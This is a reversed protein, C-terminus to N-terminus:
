ARDHPFAMVESISSKGLLLMLLRDFGLAVGSCDPLGSEMAALLRVAPPLAAACDDLRKRNEAAVRQRLVEPDTLEHYGNCLEIGRWYLEFREAVPPNGDRVKALASQSAPYDFLFEPPGQGLTPEVKEVLLLNLLADRDEPDLSAPPEIGEARCLIVLEQASQGLLPCGISRECADDYTIRNFPAESLNWASHAHLTDPKLEDIQRVVHRVLAETFDMQRHHTEGIGYWEIMTFEPNHLRGREGDRFAKTFQVLGAPRSEPACHRLDALLRKMGFEPSTQLFWTEAESGRHTHLEAIVPDLQSDVVTERSLLPTDVELYGATQFFHRLSGLLEARIRLTEWSADPRWNGTPSTNM